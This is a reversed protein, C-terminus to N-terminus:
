SWWLVGPITRSYSGVLFHKKHAPYGQLTCPNCWNVGFACGVKASITDGVGHVGMTTM